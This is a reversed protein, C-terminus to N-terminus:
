HIDGGRIVGSTAIYAYGVYGVHPMRIEQKESLISDTDEKRLESAQILLHWTFREWKGVQVDEPGGILHRTEGKFREIEASKEAGHAVPDCSTDSQRASEEVATSAWISLQTALTLFVCFYMHQM